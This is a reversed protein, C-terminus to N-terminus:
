LSVRQKRCLLLHVLKGFYNATAQYENWLHLAQEFAARVLEVLSECYRVLSASCKRKGQLRWNDPNPCHQSNFCVCISAPHSAALISSTECPDMASAMTAADRQVGNRVDEYCAAFRLLENAGSRWCHVKYLQFTPFDNLRLSERFSPPQSVVPRRSLYSRRLGARFSESQM